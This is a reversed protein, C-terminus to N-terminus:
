QTTQKEQYTVIYVNVGNNKNRSKNFGPCNRPLERSIFCFGYRVYAKQPPMEPHKVGLGAGIMIGEREGWTRLTVFDRSSIAGGALDAALNYLIDTKEDVM